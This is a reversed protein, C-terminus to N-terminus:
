IFILIKNQPFFIYTADSIHYEMKKNGRIEIKGDTSFNNNYTFFNDMNDVKYSEVSPSFKFKKGRM